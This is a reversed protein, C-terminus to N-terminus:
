SGDVYSLAEDSDLLLLLLLIVVPVVQKAMEVNVVRRASPGYCCGAQPPAGM